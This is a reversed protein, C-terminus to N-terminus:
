ENHRTCAETFPTYVTQGQMQGVMVGSKGCLLAQVAEHGLISALVRDNCTPSGGRQIHGLTTVRTEYSPLKDKVKAAVAYADGIELGESVIVIGLTKKRRENEQYTCLQDLTAPIEPILTAEAGVAISTSYRFLPM